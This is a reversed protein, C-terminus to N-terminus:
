PFTKKQAETMDPPFLKGTRRMNQILKDRDLEAPKPATAATVPFKKNELLEQMAVLREVLEKDQNPGPKLRAELKNAADDGRRSWNPVIGEAFNGSSEGVAQMMVGIPLDIKVDKGNADKGITAGGKFKKSFVEIVDDFQDGKVGEDKLAKRFAQQGEYSSFTGKDAGVSALIAKGAETAAKGGGSGGSSKGGGPGDLAHLMQAQATLTGNSASLMSAQSQVAQAARKAPGDLLSDELLARQTPVLAQANNFNIDERGWTVNQRATNRAAEMSKPLFTAQPFNAEIRQMAATDGRLRATEYERQLPEEALIQQAKTFEQGQTVNNRVIGMRADEATNVANRDFQAGMTQKLQNLAGSQELAAVEEPTKAGRLADMLAQTNNAKQNEWNANDNATVTGLTKQLADFGDNLTRAGYVMPMLADKPEAAGQISRWTIPEAM